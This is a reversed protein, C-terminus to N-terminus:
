SSGLLIARRDHMGAALVSLNLLSGWLNGYLNSNDFFLATVSSASTM